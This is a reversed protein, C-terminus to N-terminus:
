PISCRPFRGFGILSDLSSVDGKSSVRPHKVYCEMFINLKYFSFGIKKKKFLISFWCSIYFSSPYRSVLQNWVMGPGDWSM